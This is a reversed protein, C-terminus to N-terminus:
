EMSPQEPARTPPTQGPLSRSIPVSFLLQMSQWWIKHRSKNWFGCLSKMKEKQAIDSFCHYSALSRAPQCSIPESFLSQRTVYVLVKTTEIREM